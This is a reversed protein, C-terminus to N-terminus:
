AGRHNTGPCVAPNLGVPQARATRDVAEHGRDRQYPHVHADVFRRWAGEPACVSALKPNAITSAVGVVSCPELRELEM